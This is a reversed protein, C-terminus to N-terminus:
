EDNVFVRCAVIWIKSSSATSMTNCQINDTVSSCRTPMASCIRPRQTAHHQDPIPPCPTVSGSLPRRAPIIMRQHYSFETQFDESIQDIESPHDIPGTIVKLIWGSAAWIQTPNPFNPLTSRHYFQVSFALKGLATRWLSSSKSINVFLVNFCSLDSWLTTNLVLHM